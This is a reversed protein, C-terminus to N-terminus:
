EPAPPPPPPLYSTFNNTTARSKFFPERQAAYKALTDTDQLKTSGMKFFDKSPTSTAADSRGPIPVM